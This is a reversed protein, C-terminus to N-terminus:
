WRYTLTGTFVRGSGYYCTNWCSGVYRKDVINKVNLQAKVGYIEYSMAADFLTYGPVEMAEDNQSNGETQGIYRVGGGLSFGELAGQQFTYDMWLSAMHEPAQPVRRDIETLDASKTVDFIPLWTYAATMDLGEALSAQAELELGRSHIEGTQRPAGTLNDWTLYNQRRIDFAAFTVFSDIGEPQFKIGAEVQRGTEPKMPRGTAPDITAVPFFSESYSVYPALGIPSLYVMGARGTFDHDKQKIHTQNLADDTGISAWDYRGGLVVVLRDLLKAQEQLYLGTQQLTVNADAYLPPDAIDAGYDPDYVDLDATPGIGSEQDFHHRQYDLGLLGTHKVPGTEFQAQVQNDIAFADVKERSTFANRTITREDALMGTAYVQAYDLDIQGFRANQRVTWTDDFAHEFLYGVSWQTKDFHDYDPEGTFRSRPIEGHPNDIVTGSAPLFGLTAQTDERQFHTLVTLSTDDNPRWTFAPAIFQRNDETYDIETEGDRALGTLRYLFTKDEDIPGSLDFAGQFREDSGALFQVQHLPEDSPRKTVINIMGGPSGQGYLVSSPGRLVEIREIGYPDTRWVAYTNNNRGLLGDQFFGPQYAEFGRFSVWDFRSDTGYNDSKVGATYNLAEAVSQPQQDEIRQRPIVSISQPTEILPTDTKTGTASRHAVYGQVPSTATEAEGTVEVPALRVPGSRDAPLAVLTVTHDAEMLYTFGSGGLLRQLAEESTMRGKVGGSHAGRILAADVSVQLGSQQGFLAIANALPQAAIDFDKVAAAQALQYATVDLNPTAGAELAKLRLRWAEDANATAAHALLATLGACAALRRRLGTKPM